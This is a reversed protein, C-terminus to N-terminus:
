AASSAHTYMHLVFCVNQRVLTVTSAVQIYLGMKTLPAPWGSAPTTLIIDSLVSGYCPTRQKLKNGRGLLGDAYCQLGRARTTLHFPDNNAISPNSDLTLLKSKTTNICPQIVPDVPGVWKSEWIKAFQWGFEQKKKIVSMVGLLALCLSIGAHQRHSTRRGVWGGVTPVWGQEGLASVGFVQARGAQLM